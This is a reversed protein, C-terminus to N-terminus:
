LLCNGTQFVVDDNLVLSLSFCATLNFFSLKYFLQTIIREPKTEVLFRKLNSVVM